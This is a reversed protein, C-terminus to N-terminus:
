AVEPAIVQRKIIEEAKDFHDMLMGNHGDTQVFWELQKPLMDSDDDLILYSGEYAKNAIWLQIEHGRTLEHIVPTCWAEDIAKALDFCCAAAFLDYFQGRNGGLRWTSSIVVKCKYERCVRDLWRMAVPDLGSICGREGTAAAMRGTCIVGDFDLFIVM